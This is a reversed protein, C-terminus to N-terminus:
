TQFLLVIGDCCFSYIDHALCRKFSPLTRIRELDKCGLQTANRLAEQKECCLVSLPQAHFHELLALQPSVPSLFARSQACGVPNLQFVIRFSSQVQVGKIFNRVSFDHYLFISILVQMVKANLKFPFHHTLILQPLFLTKKLSLLRMLPLNAPKPAKPVELFCHSTIKLYVLKSSFSFHTLILCEIGMIFWKEGGGASKLFLSNDLM